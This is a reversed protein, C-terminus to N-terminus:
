PVVEIHEKSACNKAWKTVKHAIFWAQDPPFATLMKYIQQEADDDFNVGLPKAALAAHLEEMDEPRIRFVERPDDQRIMENQVAQWQDALSLEVCSATALSVQPPFEALCVVARDVAELRAFLDDMKPSQKSRRM